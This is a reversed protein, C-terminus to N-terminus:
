LGEEVIRNVASEVIRLYEAPDLETVGLDPPDHISTASVSVVLAVPESPDSLLVATMQSQIWPTDIPPTAPGFHFAIASVGIEPAENVALTLEGLDTTTYTTGACTNLARVLSEFDATVQDRDGWMLSESISLGIDDPRKYRTSVQPDLRGGLDAVATDGEECLFGTLQDSGPPVIKRGQDIWGGGIQETTM